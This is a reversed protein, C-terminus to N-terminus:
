DGDTANFGVSVGLATGIEQAAAARTEEIRNKLVEVRLRGSPDAVGALLPDDLARATQLATAFAAETEPVPQDALALALDRLAELSLIVNRLPRGSRRAEAVQPRPADFRGMPRGLRQDATFELGTVLATYLAQSAERATLFRSNGEAGANLLQDAFDTRWGTEIEQALRSLDGAIAQALRCTYEGNGDDDPEYLLRELAFLGRGAISVEAFREPRDVAADEEARLRQVTRRVLGRSDPWFAITLARGDEELLGLGLHSLGMWADFTAQYAPRLTDARCDQAAAADLAQAAQAFGAVRPLAHDQVVARTGATAPLTLLCLAATLLHRM